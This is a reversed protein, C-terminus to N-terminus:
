ADPAGIELSVTVTDGVQVKEARQVVVKVPVLYTGQRPFLSTTFQTRGIRVTAPICGWGYTVFSSVSKIEDAIDAPVPVFVFPAPGRWWIAEGEFELVV